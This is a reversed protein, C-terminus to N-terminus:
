HLFLKMIKVDEFKFVKQSLKKESLDPSPFFTCSGAEDSFLDNLGRRARLGKLRLRGPGAFFLRSSRRLRPLFRYKKFDILKLVKERSKPWVLNLQTFSPLVDWRFKLGSCFQSFASYIKILKPLCQCFPMPSLKVSFNRSSHRDM